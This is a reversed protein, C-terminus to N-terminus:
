CVERLESKLTRILKLQSGEQELLIEIQKEYAKMCLEKLKNTHLKIMNRYSPCTEKNRLDLIHGLSDVKILYIFPNKYITNNINDYNKTIYLIYIIYVIIYYM